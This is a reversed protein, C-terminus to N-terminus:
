LEIPEHPKRDARIIADLDIDPEGEVRGETAIREWFEEGTETKPESKRARERQEYNELALEVVQAISRREKKALRHAIDRAKASRVSLQPQPM